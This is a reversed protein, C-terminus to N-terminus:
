GRAKSEFGLKALVEDPCGHWEPQPENGVYPLDQIGTKSTFFGNVVLDRFQSFFAVAATDEPASTQPFAIRDLLQKQHAALSDKFDHGGLRNAELDLWTIGGRIQPLLDYYDSALWQEVFEPVGAQSASGSRQDAPIIWDSLVKVTEFEHPSLVRGAAAGATTAGATAGAGEGPAAAANWAQQPVAAAASGAALAAAPLATIAKLLRRRELRLGSVPEQSKEVASDRNKNM